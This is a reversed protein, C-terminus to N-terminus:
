EGSAHEAAFTTFILVGRSTKGDIEHILIDVFYRSDANKDRLSKSGACVCVCSSAM